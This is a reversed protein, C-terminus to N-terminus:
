TQAALRQLLVKPLDVPRSNLFFYQRDGASKGFSTSGSSVYRCGWVLDPCCARFPWRCVIFGADHAGCGEIAIGDATEGDLQQLGEFTRSGFITIINDRM